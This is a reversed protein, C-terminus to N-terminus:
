LPTDSRSPGAEIWSLLGASAGRSLVLLYSQGASNLNVVQGLGGSDGEPPRTRITLGLRRWRHAPAWSLSDRAFWDLALPGFAALGSRERRKAGQGEIVVCPFHGPRGRLYRWRLWILGLLGAAAVLVVVLAGVVGTILAQPM